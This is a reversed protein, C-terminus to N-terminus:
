IKLVEEQDSTVKAHSDKVVFGIILCGIGISGLLIIGLLFFTMHNNSTEFIFPSLLISFLISPIYSLAFVIGQFRQSTYLAIVTYVSPSILVEVLALFFLILMFKNMYNLGVEEPFNLLIIFAVTSILIGVGIKIFPKIYIFTWVFVLPIALIMAAISPLTYIFSNPFSSNPHQSLQMSIDSTIVGSMRDTALFIGSAFVAAIVLISRLSISNRVLSTNKPKKDRVFLSLVGSIIFALASLAFGIAYNEAVVISILFAGLFAGINIALFMINFSGDLTKPNNPHSRGILSLSNPGYLGSGIIVLLLGIYFLNENPVCLCFAGIATIFSGFLLSKKSGIVLDGLVGGILFSVSILEIFSDYVMMSDQEKMKLQQVLYVLLLSRIGYYGFREFFKSCVLWLINMEYKKGKIRELIM